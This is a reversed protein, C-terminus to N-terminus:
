GAGPPADNGGSSSSSSGTGAPPRAVIAVSPGATQQGRRSPYRLYEAARLEAALLSRANRVKRKFEEQTERNRGVGPVYDAEVQDPSMRAMGLVGMGGAKSVEVVVDRCHSFAFIPVDIGFMECMRNKM